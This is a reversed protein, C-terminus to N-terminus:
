GAVLRPAAPAAPASPAPPASPASSSSSDDGGAALALVAAGGAAGVLGLILGTGPGGGDDAATDSGADTDPPAVAAPSGEVVTGLNTQLIRAAATEGGFTAVVSLEVEGGAVPNVTVSARGMANTTLEVEQLGANLSSRGGELLRFVVSAGSVPDGNGDRVEVVTPAPTGQGIINFRDQGEIVVVRLDVEQGVAPVPLWLGALMTMLLTRSAVKTSM